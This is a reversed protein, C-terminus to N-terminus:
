FILMWVNQLEIIKTPAEKESLIKDVFNKGKKIYVNWVLKEDDKCSTCLDKRIKFKFNKHIYTLIGGGKNNPAFHCLKTTWLKLQKCRFWMWDKMQIISLIEKM